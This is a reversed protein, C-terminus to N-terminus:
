GIISSDGVGTIPTGVLVGLVGILLMLWWGDKERQQVAGIVNVIGDVLIAAAFFLAVVMWATLPQAFALVAFSIVIATLILAQAVPDAYPPELTTQGAPILPPKGRTLGGSTFILLNTGHSLLVLGFVLKVISRRLLMFLATAYLGGAVIALLIIM